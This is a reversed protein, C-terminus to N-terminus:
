ILEGVLVLWHCSIGQRTQSLLAKEKEHEVPPSRALTGGQQVIAVTTGVLDVNLVHLFPKRPEKSHRHSM